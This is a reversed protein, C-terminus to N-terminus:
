RADHSSQRELRVVTPGNPSAPREPHQWRDGPPVICRRWAVQSTIRCAHMLSHRTAVFSPYEGLENAWNRVLSSPCVVIAKDISSKGHIPSQKLLTWLLSICQLTKGLGMEDAM